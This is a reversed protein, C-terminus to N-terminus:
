SAESTIKGMSEVRVLDRRSYQMWNRPKGVNSSHSRSSCTWFLAMFLSPLVEGLLVPQSLQSHESHFVSPELSVKCCRGNGLPPWCPLHLTVKVLSYLSLVLPFLKLSFFPLALDPRLSFDKVVQFTLCQFM